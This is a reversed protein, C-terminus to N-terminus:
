ATSARCTTRPPSCTALPPRRVVWEQTGDTVVYTLNSKGGAIMTASLDSGAGPIEAAFWAGLKALDLGRPSSGDNM